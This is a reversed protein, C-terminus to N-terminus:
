CWVSWACPQWMCRAAPICSGRPSTQSPSLSTPVSMELSASFSAGTQPSPPPCCWAAIPGRM